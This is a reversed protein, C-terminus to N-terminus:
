WLNVQKEIGVAKQKQHEWWNWNQWTELSTADMKVYTKKEM